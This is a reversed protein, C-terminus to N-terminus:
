APAGRAHPAPHAAAAPSRALALGLTTGWAGLGVWWGWSPLSAYVGNEAQLWNLLLNILLIQVALGCAAGLLAVALPHPAWGLCYVILATALLGAIVSAAVLVLWGFGISLPHFSGHFAGHGFFLATVATAPTWFDSHIGPDSTPVAAIEAILGTTAILAIAALLAPVVAAGIKDRMALM